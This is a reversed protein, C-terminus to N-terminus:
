SCFAGGLLACLGPTLLVLTLVGVVLMLLTLPAALLLLAVTQAKWGAAGDRRFMKMM